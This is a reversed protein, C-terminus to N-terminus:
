APPPTPPIAGCAAWAGPCHKWLDNDGALLLTEQGSPVAALALNYDGNAITTDSRPRMELAATNWQQAFTMTQNACSAKSSVACVDQWIGQDRNNIDVTWAFTDGTQPNVALTGRFIPCSTLGIGGPNAPCWASSLTANTGTNAAVGPQNALRTWTIGDASQYYGHYRVATIFLKRVPNWVVSTAANGDPLAFSDNRDRYTRM